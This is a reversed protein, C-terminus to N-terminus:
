ILILLSGKVLKITRKYNVESPRDDLDSSWTSFILHNNKEASTIKQQGAKINIGM